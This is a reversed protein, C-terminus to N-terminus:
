KVVLCLLGDQFAVKISKTEDKTSVGVTNKLAKQMKLFTIVQLFPVFLFHSTKGKINESQQTLLQSGATIKFPQVFCLSSSEHEPSGWCLDAHFYVPIRYELLTPSGHCKPATGSGRIRVESKHIRIRSRQETVKLICFFIIKKRM